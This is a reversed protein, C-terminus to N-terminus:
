WKSKLNLQCKIPHDGEEAVYFIPKKSFKELLEQKTNKNPDFYDSGNYKEFTKMALDAVFIVDKDEFKRIKMAFGGRLTKTTLV